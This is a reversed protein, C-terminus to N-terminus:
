LPVPFPFRAARLANARWPPGGHEHQAALDILGDPDTVVHADDYNADLAIVHFNPDFRRTVNRDVTGFDVILDAAAPSARFFAWLCGGGDSPRL